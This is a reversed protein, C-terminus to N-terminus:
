GYDHNETTIANNPLPPYRHLSLIRPRSLPLLDRSMDQFATGQGAGKEAEQVGNLSCCPQAVPERWSATGGWLGVAISGGVM